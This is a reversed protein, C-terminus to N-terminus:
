LEEVRLVTSFIISDVSKNITLSVNEVKYKHGKYELISGVKILQSDESTEGKLNNFFAQVEDLENSSNVNVVTWNNVKDKIEIWFEADREIM